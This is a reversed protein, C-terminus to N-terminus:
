FKCIFWFITVILVAGVVSNDHVFRELPSQTFERGQVTDVTYGVFRVFIWALVAAAAITIWMPIRDRKGLMIWVIFASMAGVTLTDELIDLIAGLRSSTGCQRAVAGDLCDLSQRIVAIVLLIWLPWGAHLGWLLPALLAFCAATLLNPHVTCLRTALPVYVYEYLWYDTSLSTAPAPM